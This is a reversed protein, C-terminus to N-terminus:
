NIPNARTKVRVFFMFSIEVSRHITVRMRSLTANVTDRFERMVRAPDVNVIKDADPDEEKDEKKKDDNHVHDHDQHDHQDLQNGKETTADKEARVVIEKYRFRFCFADVRRRREDLRVCRKDYVAKAALSFPLLSIQM